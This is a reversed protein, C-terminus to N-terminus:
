IACACYRRGGIVSAGGELLSVPGSTTVSTNGVPEM